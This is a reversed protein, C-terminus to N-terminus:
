IRYGRHEPLEATPKRRVLPRHVASNIVEGDQDLMLVETITDRNFQIFGYTKETKNLIALLLFDAMSGQYNEDTAQENGSHDTGIFLYAKLQDKVTYELDNLDIWYEDLGFDFDEETETESFWSEETEATAFYSARQERRPMLLVGAISGAALVAGLLLSITKKGTM